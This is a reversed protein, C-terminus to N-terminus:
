KKFSYYIKNDSIAYIGGLRKFNFLNEATYDTKVIPVFLFIQLNFDFTNGYFSNFFIYRKKKM